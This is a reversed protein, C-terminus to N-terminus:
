YPQQHHHHHHHHHQQSPPIPVDFCGTTKSIGLLHAPSGSPPSLWFARGDTQVDEQEGRLHVRDSSPDRKGEAECWRGSSFNATTLGSSIAIATSDLEPDRQARNSRDTGVTTSLLSSSCSLLHQTDVRHRRGSSINLLLTVASGRFRCSLLAALSLVCSGALFM